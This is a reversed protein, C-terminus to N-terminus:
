VETLAFAACTPSFFEQYHFATPKHKRPIREFFSGPFAYNDTHSTLNNQQLIFPSSFSPAATHLFLCMDREVRNHRDHAYKCDRLSTHEKDSATRQFLRNAMRFYAPGKQPSIKGEHWASKHARVIPDSAQLAKRGAKKDGRLNKLNITFNMQPGARLLKLRLTTYHYYAHMPHM